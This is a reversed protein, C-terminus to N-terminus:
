KTVPLETESIREREDSLITLSNEVSVPWSFFIIAFAVINKM